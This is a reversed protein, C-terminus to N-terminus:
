RVDKVQTPCRKTKDSVKLKYRGHKSISKNRIANTYICCLMFIHLNSIKDAFPRWIMVQEPTIPQSISAKCTMGFTDYLIGLHELFDTTGSLGKTLKIKGAAADKTFLTDSVICIGHM